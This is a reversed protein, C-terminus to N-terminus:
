WVIRYNQKPTILYYAENTAFGFNFNQNNHTTIFIINWALSHYGEIRHLALIRDSWVKFYKEKEVSYVRYVDQLYNGEYKNFEKVLERGKVSYLSYVEYEIDNLTVKAM